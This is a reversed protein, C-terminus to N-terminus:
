YRSFGSRAALPLANRRAFKRAVYAFSRPRAAIPEAALHREIDAAFAEVSAYRDGPPKELAKAVIVDLDGHLAGAEAPRAM